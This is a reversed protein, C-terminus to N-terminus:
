RGTVKAGNDMLEAAHVPLEPSVMRLGSGGGTADTQGDGARARASARLLPLLAGSGRAAARLRVGFRRAGERPSCPSSAVNGAALV